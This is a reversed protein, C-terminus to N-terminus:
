ESYMPYMSPWEGSGWDETEWEEPFYILYRTDQYDIEVPFSEQKPWLGIFDNLEPIDSREIIIVTEAVQEKRLSFSLSTNERYKDCIGMLESKTM